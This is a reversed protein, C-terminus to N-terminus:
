VTKEKKFISIEKNQNYYYVEFFIMTSFDMNYSETKEKMKSISINVLQQGNSEILEPAINVDFATHIPIEFGNFKSTSHIKM